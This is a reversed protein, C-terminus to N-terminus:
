GKKHANAVLAILVLGIAGAFAGLIFGCWFEPIYM